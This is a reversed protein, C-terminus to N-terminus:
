ALGEQRRTMLGLYLVYLPWLYVRDWAGIRRRLTGGFGRKFRYVGWLGRQKELFRSELDAEKFDPVGWLDYQRCGQAKAWQMARWQLLYAPMKERHQDASAGYLYWAREGQRFAMVGGVLQQEFYALFLKARGSPAFLDLARHYYAQAHSAFGDRRATIRMLNCFPEVDESSEVRVGHRQALHINYRTKQKMRGLIEEESPQLDVVISRPPQVTHASPRFGLEMLGAQLRSDEPLDPEVKLAFAHRQRCLADLDPLLRTLGALSPPVPGMPLYALSLGFPLPRFLVQAGEGDRLAWDTKWGFSSKLQGWEPTQLLHAEPHHAIHHEWAVPGFM